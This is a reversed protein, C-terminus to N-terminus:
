RGLVDGPSLEMELMQPTLLMLMRHSKGARDAVTGESVYLGRFMGDGLRYLNMKESPKKPSVMTKVFTLSAAGVFEGARGRPSVLMVAWHAQSLGPMYLVFVSEAPVSPPKVWMRMVIDGMIRSDVLPPTSAQGLVFSWLTRSYDAAASASGSLMLLGVLM